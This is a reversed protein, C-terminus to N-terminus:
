KQRAPACSSETPEPQRDADKKGSGPDVKIGALLKVSVSRKFLGARNALRKMAGNWGQRIIKKFVLTTIPPPIHFLREDYEVPELKSVSKPEVITRKM